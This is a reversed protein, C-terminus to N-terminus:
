VPLPMVPRRLEANDVGASAFSAPTKKDAVSGSESAELISSLIWFVPFLLSAFCLRRFGATPKVPAIPFHFADSDPLQRRRFM